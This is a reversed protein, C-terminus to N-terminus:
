IYLHTLFTSTYTAHDRMTVSLAPDCLRDRGSKRCIQVLFVIYLRKYLTRKDSTQQVERRIHTSLNGGLLSIATALDKWAMERGEWAFNQMGLFTVRRLSMVEIGEGTASKSCVGHM